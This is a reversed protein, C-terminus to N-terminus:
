ARSCKGIQTSSNLAVRQHRHWRYGLGLLAAAGAMPLTAPEPVAVQLDLSTLTGISTTGVSVYPESYSVPFLFKIADHALDLSLDPQLSSPLQALLQNYTDTLVGALTPSSLSSYLISSSALVGGSYGLAAQFSSESGSPNTASVTGEFDITGSVPGAFSTETPVNVWAVTIPELTPDAVLTIVTGAVTVVNSGAARLALFGAAILAQQVKGAKIVDSDTALINANVGTDGVGDNVNLMLVGGATPTGTTVMGGSSNLNVTGCIGLCLLAIRFRM